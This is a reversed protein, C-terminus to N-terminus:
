PHSVPLTKCGYEVTRTSHTRSALVQWQISVCDWSVGCTEYKIYKNKAMTQSMGSMPVVDGYGGAAFGDDM